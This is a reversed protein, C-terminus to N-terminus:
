VPCMNKMKMFGIFADANMAGDLFEFRILGQNSLASAMTLGFKPRRAAKHEQEPTDQALRM